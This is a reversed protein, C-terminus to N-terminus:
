LGMCSTAGLANLEHTLFPMPLPTDFSHGSALREQLDRRPGAVWAPVEIFAVVPRKLGEQWDLRHVAELFVDIGKNKFEYRGSTAVIITDEPYETGTLANAVRLLAQRAKRRHATFAQGSPVFDNEFGNMLVADCHRDLLEECERATVDSVTTFCDVNHATQREISHKAEM